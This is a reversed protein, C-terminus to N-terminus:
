HAMCGIGSVVTRDICQPGPDEESNAAEGPQRDAPLNGDLHNM